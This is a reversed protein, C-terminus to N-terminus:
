ARSVRGTASYLITSTKSGKLQTPTHSGVWQTGFTEQADIFAGASNRAQELPNVAWPKVMRFRTTGREGVLIRTDGFASRPARPRWVPMDKVFGVSGDSALGTAVRASNAQFTKAQSLANNVNGSMLIMNPTYFRDDEIVAKRGGIAFLLKDWKVDVADSGLDTDFKSVNTSYSYSVTLPWANTPTVAVGAQNVFQLEGLNYDMVYYTGAALATGDAPLIYEERVVSNLTVVIPNATSGQQVGKLDYVKRPRIVPFSALAFIRKTGDVDAGRNEAVVAVAAFEDASTALENLNIAEVDEGVIRVMNRMNEAVPEFDIVSAGLLMRMESSLQFALKQPIPRTEEETQIIGGKRIAQGEYRRLGDVGAATTDRYSYPITIVNAFAATGVNVLGLSMLGYLAERLVTREAIKPVAVDSVSGVGAALSKHLENERFLVEGNARDFEALVKEAFDKNAALLTGGTREFRIPDKENTLGLRQDVTAQLSKISNGTEVTIHVNGSAPNYGLGVLKHAASLAKAQKVALSALHKVQDDTSAATVMPAYDDAFKKVGEPTLTKDGDAITDSLLKLKAALTTATTIAATERQALLREVIQEPNEGGPSALTITFNGTGGAAKIQKMAADATLCLSDLVALCKSEEALVSTLQKEALDLLPKANADTFGLLILRALLQELYKKMETETLQKILTPSLLLRYDRDSNDTTSLQVPDLHKIVPRITLGAGLLVCGHAAGKENDTWAEHFEASLYTFGRDRVAAVGFPTWEVLARLRNDQVELKVVKAAAGDSHKHAVDIYIDQGTVRKDFNSVMQSLMTPTISFAGYRPDSFDGTRTVTVWTTKAAADSLEITQHSVFRVTGPPSEGELLFHRGEPVASVALGAMAASLALVGMSIRSKKM